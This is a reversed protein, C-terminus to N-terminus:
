TQLHKLFLKSIRDLTAYLEQLKDQMIGGTVEYNSFLARELASSCNEM